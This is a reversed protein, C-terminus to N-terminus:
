DIVVLCTLTPAQNKLLTLHAVVIQKVVNRM